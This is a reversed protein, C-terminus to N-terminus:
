SFGVGQREQPPANNNAEYDDRCDVQEVLNDIQRQLEYM